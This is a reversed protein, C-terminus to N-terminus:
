REYPPAPHPALIRTKAQEFEAQTLTGSDRLRVLREIQDLAADENRILSRHANEAPETSKASRAALNIAQALERAAMGHEAHLQRTYAWDPGEVALYLERTDTRSVKANGIFFFGLGGTM